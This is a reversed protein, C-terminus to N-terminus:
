PVDSDQVQIGIELFNLKRGRFRQFYRRAGFSADSCLQQSASALATLIASALCFCDVDLM